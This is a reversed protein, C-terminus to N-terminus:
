NIERGLMRAVFGIIGREPHCASKAVLFNRIAFYVGVLGCAIGIYQSWHMRRSMVESVAFLLPSDGHVLIKSEIWAPIAFYFIVFLVAGLVLAGWWPLRAGIYVTDSIISTKSKRRYYRRAM